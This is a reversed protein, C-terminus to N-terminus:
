PNVVIAHVVRHYVNDYPCMVEPDRSPHRGSSNLDKDFAEALIYASPRVIPSSTSSKRPELRLCHRSPSAEGYGLEGYGLCESKM